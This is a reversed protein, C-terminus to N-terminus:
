KPKVVIEIERGVWYSKSLHIPVEFCFKETRVKLYHGDFPRFVAECERVTDKLKM